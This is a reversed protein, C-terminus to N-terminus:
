INYKKRFERIIESDRGFNGLMERFRGDLAIYGADKPRYDIMLFYVAKKLTESAEKRMNKAYYACSILFYLYHIRDYSNYRQKNTKFFENGANIVDDFEGNVYHSGMVSIVITTALREDMEADNKRLYIGYAGSAAKKANNVDGTIFCCAAMLNYANATFMEATYVPEAEKLMNSLQASTEEYQRQIYFKYFLHNLMIEFSWPRNKFDPMKEAEDSVENLREFEINIRYMNFEQIKKRVAVPDECNLYPYFEILNIRLRDGLQRLLTASPAREGKEILYIHKQSCINDSLARRSMGSAQRYKEIITGIHGM